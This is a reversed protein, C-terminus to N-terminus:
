AEQRFQIMWQENYAIVSTGVWGKKLLSQQRAEDDIEVFRYRKYLTNLKEELVYGDTTLATIALSQALYSQMQQVHQEHIVNM